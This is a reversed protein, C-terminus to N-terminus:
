GRLPNKWRVGSFRGFDLDSSHIEAQYELALAAIHADTTLSGGHGADKLCALLAALHGSGPTILRVMRLRFWSDVIRGSEDVTLPRQLVRTSTTLRLFALVVVIPIGIEGGGGLLGQWWDLAAAHEPDSRNHAYIILNTDPIIM